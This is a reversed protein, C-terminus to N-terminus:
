FSLPIQKVIEAEWPLFIQDILEVNWQMSDQLILTGVTANVDLLRSPSLVTASPAGQLWCDKWIRINAGTGVRWVMGALLVEKEECISHFIYSANGKISAELFSQHPYYKAKLVRSALSDSFQVLRWGQRALFAMNFLSLERFGMGGESKGRILQNKGLWHVKRELGRQGWWFRTAISTIESCLGKHFKFCSM